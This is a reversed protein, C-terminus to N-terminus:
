ISGLLFVRTSSFVVLDQLDLLFRICIILVNSVSDYCGFFSLFYSIFM